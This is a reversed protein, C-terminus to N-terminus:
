IGFILGHLNGIGVFDVGFQLMGEMPNMLAVVKVLFCNMMM